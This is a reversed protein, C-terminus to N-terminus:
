IGFQRLLKGFAEIDDITAPRPTRYVILVTDNFTFTSIQGGEIHRLEQEAGNKLIELVLERSKLFQKIEPDTFSAAGLADLVAIVGQEEPKEALDKDKNNDMIMLVSGCGGM